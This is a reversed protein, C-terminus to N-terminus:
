IYYSLVSREMRKKKKIVQAERTRHVIKANIGRNSVCIVFMKGEMMIKAIDEEV